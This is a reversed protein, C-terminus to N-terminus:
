KGANKEHVSRAPNGAVVASRPVDRTVVAGAGVIALEGITVGPLVIAGAGIWAGSGIKVPGERYGREGASGFTAPDLGAALIMARASLVVDDGIEIGDRAILLVDHNIACREGIRVKDAGIVTFNGFVDVKRGFARFAKFARWRRSLRNLL